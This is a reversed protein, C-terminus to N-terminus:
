VIYFISYNKVDCGAKINLKNNNLYMLKDWILNTCKLSLTYKIVYM